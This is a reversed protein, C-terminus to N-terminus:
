GVERSLLGDVGVKGVVLYHVVDGGQQGVGRLVRLLHPPAPRDCKDLLHQRLGGKILWSGQGDTRRDTWTQLFRWMPLSRNATTNKSSSAVTNEGVIM